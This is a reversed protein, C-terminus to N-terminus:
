KDNKYKKIKACLSKILKKVIPLVFYNPILRLYWPLSPKVKQTYLDVALKEKEENTWKGDATDKEVRLAIWSVIEKHDDIFKKVALLVALVGSLIVKLDM